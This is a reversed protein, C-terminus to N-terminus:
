RPEKHVLGVFVPTWVITIFVALSFNLLATVGLAMGLLLLGVSKLLDFPPEM